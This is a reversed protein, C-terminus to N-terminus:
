KNESTASSDNNDELKKLENHLKKLTKLKLGCYDYMERMARKASLGSGLTFYKDIDGRTFELFEIYNSIASKHIEIVHRLQISESHNYIIDAIQKQFIWLFMKRIRTTKQEIPVVPTEKLKKDMM